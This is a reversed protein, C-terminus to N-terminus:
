ISKDARDVLGTAAAAMIEAWDHPDEPDVFVCSIGVRWTDGAAELVENGHELLIPDVTGKMEYVFGRVPTEVLREMLRELRPGHIASLEEPPGQASAFLWLVIAVDGVLDLVTHPQLPDALAPEIGAESIAALGDETRSTGRVEWGQALLRKGVLRGRCGCGVILARAV